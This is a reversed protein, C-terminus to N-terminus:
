KMTKHKTADGTWVAGNMSRSVGMFSTTGGFGALWLWAAVILCNLPLRMM